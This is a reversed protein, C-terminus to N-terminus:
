GTLRSAQVPHPGPAYYPHPACGDPRPKPRPARLRPCERLPTGFPLMVTVCQIALATPMAPIPRSAAAQELLGLEVVELGAVELGAEELAAAAGALVGALLGAAVPAAVTDSAAIEPIGPLASTPLLPRASYRNSASLFPVDAHAAAHAAAHGGTVTVPDGCAPLPTLWDRSPVMVRASPVM